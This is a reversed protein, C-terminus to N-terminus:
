EPQPEVWSLTAEDWIYFKGDNPIVTPAEFGCTEENFVWSAFGNNDAWFQKVENQKATKEENTMDRVQHFDAYGDNEPEYTVGEYVEYIGISPKDKRVFKAFEPPLNNIDITPFAQIFNDEIIPHDVPQGDTIRIYLNM